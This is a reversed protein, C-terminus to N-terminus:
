PIFIFQTLYYDDSIRKLIEKEKKEQEKLFIPELKIYAAKLENTMDIAEQPMDSSIVTWDPLYQLWQTKM